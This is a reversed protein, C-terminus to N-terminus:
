DVWHWRSEVSAFVDELSGAVVNEWEFDFRAVFVDHEVVGGTMHAAVVVAAFVAAAAFEVAVAAYAVVVVVPINASVVDDAATAAIANAAAVPSM